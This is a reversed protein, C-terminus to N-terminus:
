KVLIGLGFDKIYNFYRLGNANAIDACAWSVPPFSMTDHFLVIPAHQVAWSGVGMTMEYTHEVDIHILGYGMVPAMTQVGAHRTTFDEWSMQILEINPYPAVFGETVEYFNERVGSHQDGTFTDVGIVKEFFNSLAVASFGYETGFELVVNRKVEFRELIDTLVWEMGKWASGNVTPPLNLTHKPEVLKTPEYIQMGVNYPPFKGSM